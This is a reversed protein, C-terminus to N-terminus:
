LGGCPLTIEMGVMQWARKTGVGGGMQLLAAQGVQLQYLAGRAVCDSCLGGIANKDEGTGPVAGM